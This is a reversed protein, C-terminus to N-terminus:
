SIYFPYKQISNYHLLSFTIKTWTTYWCYQSLLRLIHSFVFRQHLLTLNNSFYILNFSKMSTILAYSTKVPYILTNCIVTTGNEAFLSTSLNKRKQNPAEMFCARSNRLKSITEFIRQLYIIIVIFVTRVTVGKDLGFANFNLIKEYQSFIISHFM